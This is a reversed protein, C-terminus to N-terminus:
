IKELLIAITWNDEKYPSGKVDGYINCVKFGADTVEKILTKKTFYTTWLYYNAIGSDNVITTQELTVNDAYKCCRNLAIYAEKLWFGGDTCNEWTQREEFDIFKAISFVDLLLKGHPKLHLFVKEMLVKRENEALAGYDCYIMTIFDFQQKLDMELYNEYIYNINLNQKRASARGYDISRRSFDVGTVQYGLKTFKEAYIGPGCGIDLLLPNSSSPVTKNIWTASEEIFKAKRSAGEFNPDLHAKLMQKSIHEDDWFAGETKKYLPPKELVKRISDFM